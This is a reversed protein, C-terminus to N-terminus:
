LTINKISNLEFVTTNQFKGFSIESLFQSQLSQNEVLNEQNEQNERTIPIVRRSKKGRFFGDDTVTAYLWNDQDFNVDILVV